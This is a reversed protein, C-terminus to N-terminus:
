VAEEGLAFRLQRSESWAVRLSEAVPRTGM